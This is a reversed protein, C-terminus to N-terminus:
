DAEKIHRKREGGRVCASLLFPHRFRTKERRGQSMLRSRQGDRHLSVSSPEPQAATEHSDPPPDEAEFTAVVAAGAGGRGRGDGISAAPDLAGRHGRPEEIPAPAEGAAEAAAAFVPRREQLLIRPPRRGLPVERHVDAPPLRPPVHHRDDVEVVRQEPFQQPLCLLLEPELVGAADGDGAGGGLELADPGTDSGGAAM